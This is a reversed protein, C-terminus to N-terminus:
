GLSGVVRAFPVTVDDDAVYRWPYDSVRGALHAAAARAHGPMQANSFCFLFSNLDRVRWPAAPDGDGTFAAWSVELQDRVRQDSWLLDASGTNPDGAGALRGVWTEVIAEPVM